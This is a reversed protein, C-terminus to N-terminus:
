PRIRAFILKQQQQGLLNKFDKIGVFRYYSTPLPSNEAYFTDAEREIMILTSNYRDHLSKFAVYDTLINEVQFYEQESPLILLKKAESQSIKGQALMNQLKGIGRQMRKFGLAQAVLRDQEQPNDAKTTHSSYNPKRYSIKPKPKPLHPAIIANCRNVLDPYADPDVAQAPALSQQYRLAYTQKKKPDNTANIMAISSRCVRDVENYLKDIRKQGTEQKVHAFSLTSSYCLLLMSMTKIQRCYFM